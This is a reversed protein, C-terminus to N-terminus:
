LRLKNAILVAAAFCILMSMVVRVLRLWPPVSGDFARELAAPLTQVVRGAKLMSTAVHWFYWGFLALVAAALAWGYLDFSAM